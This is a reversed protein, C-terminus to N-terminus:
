RLKALFEAMNKRSMVVDQLAEQVADAELDALEYDELKIPVSVSTGRGPGGFSPGRADQGYYYQWVGPPPELLRVPREALFTRLRLDCFRHQVVVEPTEDFFQRLMSARVLFDFFEPQGFSELNYADQERIDTVLATKSALLSDVEKVTSPASEPAHLPNPRCKVASVVADIDIQSQAEKAEARYGNTRMPHWLDDDDGFFVWTRSAAPGTPLLSVLLSLHMCQSRPEAQEQFVHISKPMKLSVSELLSRVRRLMEASGASYSVMVEDPVDTQHVVSNLAHEFRVLREETEIHSAILAAIWPHNGGSPNLARRTARQRDHRMAPTLEEHAKLSGLLISLVVQLMQLKM